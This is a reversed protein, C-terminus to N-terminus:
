LSARKLVRTIACVDGSYMSYMNNLRSGSRTGSKGPLLIMEGDALLKKKGLTEEWCEVTRIFLMILAMSPWKCTTFFQNNSAKSTQAPEKSREEKMVGLAEKVM